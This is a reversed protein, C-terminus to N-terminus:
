HVCHRLQSPPRDHSLFSQSGRHQTPHLRVRYPGSNSYQCQFEPWVIDVAVGDTSRGLDRGATKAGDHHGWLLPRENCCTERGRRHGCTASSRLTVRDGCLHRLTQSKTVWEAWYHSPGHSPNVPVLKTATAAQSSRSRKRHITYRWLAFCHRLSTAAIFFGRPVALLRKRPPLM